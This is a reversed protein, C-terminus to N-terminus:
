GRLVGRARMAELLQEVTEDLSAHETDLVLDAATPEEYPAGVGTLQPVEGRKARAYLGKPDRRMCTELPANVFVEIFAGEPLRARIQQRDTRYPSVFACLVLSGQEFFLRAAEGARRINEAREAPSFGLDGNLGHRLQDGDLLMTQCGADFLRREIARAITTKGAGPLGTLWVVAARHGNRREREDRPINWGSWRVNESTAAVPVREAQEPDRIMGAAVTVNSQPDVLVFGGMAANRQYPDHWVARATSISVRGIDNIALADAPVASLTDMDIRHHVATVHAQVQQTTHLMLYARERALPVDHMWCVDADLVMSSRPLHHPHVVVDGRSIDVEDATTLVVDEGSSADARAGDHSQMSAVTTTRGSPLIVIEDGARVTGSAITGAYGRFHQDPRIVYQVPLRFEAAPQRRRAPASELQELLSAGRHWPMHPSPTVVNDGDLASVPLFTIQPIALKAAASMFDAVVTEYRQQSYGVLDMQNVAVIVQPIGLLAAIFAHRRSQALVGKSVDVLIIALDATSAGTVMNRTYQVHGPTDAIIFRRRPTSFYRYAVDITIKQEREARLGDTLLSLDTTGGARRSTREIQALQDDLIAKSDYLLRGVLTSKGDDVSGATLLRLLDVTPAPQSM